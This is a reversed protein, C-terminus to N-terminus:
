VNGLIQIIDREKAGGWLCEAWQNMSARLVKARRAEEDAGFGQQLGLVGGGENAFV